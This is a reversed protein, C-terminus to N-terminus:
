IETALLTYIMPARSRIDEGIIISDSRRQNYGQIRGTRIEEAVDVDVSGERRAAGRSVSYALIFPAGNTRELYHLDIMVTAEIDECSPHTGSSDVVFRSPLRSGEVDDSGGDAEYLRRLEVLLVGSLNGYLEPNVPRPWIKQDVRVSVCVHSNEGVVVPANTQALTTCAGLTMGALVSAALFPRIKRMSKQKMVM